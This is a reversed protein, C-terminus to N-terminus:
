ITAPNYIAIADEAGSGNYTCYIPFYYSIGDQVLEVTEIYDNYDLGVPEYDDDYNFVKEKNHVNAIQINSDILLDEFDGDCAATMLEAVKQTAEEPVSVLIPLTGRCNVTIWLAASIMLVALAAFMYAMIKKM